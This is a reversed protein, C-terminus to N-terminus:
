IGAATDLPFACVKQIYDNLEQLLGRCNMNHGFFIESNYTFTQLGFNAHVGGRIQSKSDYYALAHPM